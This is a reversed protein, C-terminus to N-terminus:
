VIVSVWGILLSKSKFEIFYVGIFKFILFMWWLNLENFFIVLSIDSKIM